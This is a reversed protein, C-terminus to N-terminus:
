ASVVKKSRSRRLKSIGSGIATPILGVIPSFAFPVPVATSQFEFSGGTFPIGFASTPRTLAAIGNNIVRGNVFTIEAPTTILSASPIAQKDPSGSLFVAGVVYGNGVALPVSTIPVIRFLNDASLAATTGSPVTASAILTGAPDWLGIDHSQGLGDGNEDFISLHTVTIPSNVNFSYGRTSTTSTSNTSSNAPFSMASLAQASSAGLLTSLSASAAGIAAISAINRVLKTKLSNM